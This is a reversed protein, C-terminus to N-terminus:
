KGNAVGTRIKHVFTRIKHVFEEAKKLMEEAEKKSISEIDRYIFDNRKKRLVDFYAVLDLDFGAKALFEFVNKHHERGIARYGLFNMLRNSIKFIGNYVVSLVEDYNGTKFGNRAFDISREGSKSDFDNKKVREIKGESLLKEFNM